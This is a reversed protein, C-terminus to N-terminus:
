WWRSESHDDLTWWHDPCWCHSWHYYSLYRSRSRFHLLYRFHFHFHVNLPCGYGRVREYVRVAWERVSNWDMMGEILQGM